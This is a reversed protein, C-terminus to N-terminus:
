MTGDVCDPSDFGRFEDGAEGADNAVYAYGFVQRL